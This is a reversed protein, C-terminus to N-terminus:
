PEEEQPAVDKDVKESTDNNEPVSEKKCDFIWSIILTILLLCGVVWQLVGGTLAIIKCDDDLLECAKEMVENFSTRYLYAPGWYNTVLAIILLLQNLKKIKPSFTCFLLVSVCIISSTLILITIIALSQAWKQRSSTDYDFVDDDDGIDAYAKCEDEFPDYLSFIGYKLKYSPNGEYSDAKVQAFKCTSISVISLILCIVTPVLVTILRQKLSVGTAWKCGCCQGSGCM